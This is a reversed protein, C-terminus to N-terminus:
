LTARMGDEISTGTGLARRATAWSLGRSPVSLSMFVNNPHTFPLLKATVIPEEPAEGWWDDNARDAWIATWRRRARWARWRGPRIRTGAPITM